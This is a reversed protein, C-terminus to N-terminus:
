GTEVSVNQLVSAIYDATTGLEETISQISMGSDYLEFIREDLDYKAEEETRM